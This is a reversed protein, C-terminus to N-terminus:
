NNTIEIKFNNNNQPYIKINSSHYFQNNVIIGNDKLIIENKNEDLLLNNLLCIRKLIKKQYKQYLNIILNM